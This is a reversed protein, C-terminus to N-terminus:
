LKASEPKVHRVVGHGIRHVKLGRAAVEPPLCRAANNLFLRGVEDIFRQFVAEVQEETPNPCPRGDDTTPVRRGVVFHVHGPRPALFFPLGWRGKFYPLGVRLHKAVWLRLGQGGYSEYLQWPRAPLFRRRHLSKSVKACSLACSLAYSLACRSALACGELLAATRALLLRTSVQNEGFSYCALLPRGHEMALRVFGLGKQFYVAEQSSNCMVMEWIGGPNIAVTHQDQLLRCLTPRSAERVGMLLLLERLIPVKFLISAGAFRAALDSLGPEAYPQGPRFKFAGIGLMALPFVGHPGVAAVLGQHKAGLTEEGDYEVSLSLGLIRALMHCM